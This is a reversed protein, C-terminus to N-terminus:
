HETPWDFFALLAERDKALKETAKPTSPGM